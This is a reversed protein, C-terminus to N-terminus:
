DRPCGITFNLYILIQINGGKSCCVTYDRSVRGADWIRVSTDLSGTAFLPSNKGVAAMRNIRETHEHLSALLIGEPLQAADHCPPARPPSRPFPHRADLSSPSPRPIRPFLRDEALANGGPGEEGGGKADLPRTNQCSKLLHERLFM